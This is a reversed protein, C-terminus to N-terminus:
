SVNKQSIDASQYGTFVASLVGKTLVPILLGFYVCVAFLVERDLLMHLYYRIGKKIKKKAIEHKCAISLIRRAQVSESLRLIDEIHFTYAAATDTNETPKGEFIINDGNLRFHYDIGRGRTDRFRLTAQKPWRLFLPVKEPTPKALKVCGAELFSFIYKNLDRVNESSEMKLTFCILNICKFFQFILALLSNKEQFAKPVYFKGWCYAYMKRLTTSDM